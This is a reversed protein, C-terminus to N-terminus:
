CLAQYAAPLDRHFSRAGNLAEFYARSNKRFGWRAVVYAPLSRIAACETKGEDPEGRLHISEHALVDIAGGLVQLLVAKGRIRGLLLDCVEPALYTADGGIAPTFGGSHGNPPPVSLTAVYSEWTGADNACNVTVPKGAIYAARAALAPRSTFGAPVDPAAQAAVPVGIAVAAVVGAVFVKV